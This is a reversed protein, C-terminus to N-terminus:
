GNRVLHALVLVILAIMSWFHWCRVQQQNPAGSKLILGLGLQLFLLCFALTAAWIGTTDVRGMAPGTFSTHVLVLAILTYGLWYHPWLKTRLNPRRVQETKSIATAAARAAQNRLSERLIYPLATVIGVVLVAAWGTASVLFFRLM